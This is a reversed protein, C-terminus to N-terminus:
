RIILTYTYLLCITHLLQDLGIVIFFLHIEQKKWLYSTARSTFYDVIFHLVGNVLAFLWGFLTLPIMYVLIHMGLALNSKSKNTAMWRTQLMFDAVWHIFLILIFTNIDIM